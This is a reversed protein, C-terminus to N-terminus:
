NPDNEKLKYKLVINRIQKVQYGKAKGQKSQINLIEPIDDKCFIHHSGSIREGFGLRELFQCLTEFEISNDSSGDLLKQRFKEYKGM